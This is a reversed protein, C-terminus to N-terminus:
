KWSRNSTLRKAGPLTMCGSDPTVVSRCSQVVSPPLEPEGSILM